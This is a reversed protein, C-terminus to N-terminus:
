PGPRGRAGSSGAQWRGDSTTTLSSRSRMTAVSWSQSRIGDIEAWGSWTSSTCAEAVNAAADTSRRRGRARGTMKSVAPAGATYPSQSCARARARGGDHDVAVMVDLGDVRDVQPLRRGELGSAAAVALAEGAAGDVVLALHQVLDLGHAAEELEVSRSGTM